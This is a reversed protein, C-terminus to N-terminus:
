HDSVILLQSHQPLNPQDIYTGIKNLTGCRIYLMYDIFMVIHDPMGRSTANLEKAVAAAVCSLGKVDSTIKGAIESKMNSWNGRAM